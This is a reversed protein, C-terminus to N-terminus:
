ALAWPVEIRALAGALASFVSAVHRALVDENRELERWAVIDRRALPSCSPHRCSLVFRVKRLFVHWWFM